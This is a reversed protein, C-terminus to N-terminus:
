SVHIPAVLRPVIHGNVLICAEIVVLLGDRVLPHEGSGVNSHREVLHAVVEEGMELEQVVHNLVDRMVVHMQLQLGLGVCVFCHVVGKAVM